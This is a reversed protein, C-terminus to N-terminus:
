RGLDLDLLRDIRPIVLLIDFTYPNMWHANDHEFVTTMGTESVLGTRYDPLHAHHWPPCYQLLRRILSALVMAVFRRSPMRRRGAPPWLSAHSAWLFAASLLVAKHVLEFLEVIRHNHSQGLHGRALQLVLALFCQPLNQMCMGDM